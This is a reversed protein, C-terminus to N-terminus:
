SLQATGALMAATGAYDRSEVRGARVGERRGCGRCGAGRRRGDDGAGADPRLLGAATAAGPWWSEGPSTIVWEALGEGMGPFNDALGALEDLREVEFGARRLAAEVSAAAREVRPRAVRSATRAPTM